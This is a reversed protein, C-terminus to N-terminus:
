KAGDSKFEDYWRGRWDKYDWRLTWRELKGWERRAERLEEIYGTIEARMERDRLNRERKIRQM